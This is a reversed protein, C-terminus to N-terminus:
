PAYYIPNETLKFLQQNVQRLRAFPQATMVEREEKTKGHHECDGLHPLIAWREARLRSIAAADEPSYLRDKHTITISRMGASTTSPESWELMFGAGILVILAPVLGAVRNPGTQKRFLLRM